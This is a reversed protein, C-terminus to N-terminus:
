STEATSASQPFASTKGCGEQDTCLSQLDPRRTCLRQSTAFEILLLFLELSCSAFDRHVNCLMPLSLWQLMDSMLQATSLAASLFIRMCATPLGDFNLATAPVAVAKSGFEHIASELLVECKVLMYWCGSKPLLTPQPRPFAMSHWFYSPLSSKAASQPGCWEQGLRRVCFWHEQRSVLQPQLTKRVCM